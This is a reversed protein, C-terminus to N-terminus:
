RQPPREEGYGPPTGPGSSGVSFERGDAFTVITGAIIRAGSKALYGKVVIEVGPPLDTKKLGRRSLTNPSGAQIAWNAVTGDPGKVDLYIWGHPNIWDLRTLTGKLTIPKSGDFEAAFSHHALVPAASLLVGIGVIASTMQRRM